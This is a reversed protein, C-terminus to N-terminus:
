APVSSPRQLVAPREDSLRSSSPLRVVVRTGDAHSSDVSISGGHAELIVRAIPLGLGSGTAHTEKPWRSWFRDFIMPLSAPDIGCGNDSIEVVASDGDERAVISIEGDDDTAKVANDVIAELADELRNRDALLTQQSNADIRWRRPIATWRAAIREILEDLDVWDTPLVRQGEPSALLILREAIGGLRHLEGVLTDIDAHVEPSSAERVLDAYGRAISLPTKLQHSADRLFARERVAAKRVEELATQRRQAHWVMALFMAGMLPVETLEDPGQPGQTVVWGLTIGTAICVGGLAALTTSVGWVRLGYLLTFSVWVFHFPVTEFEPVVLIGVLNIAAFALWSLELWHSHAWSRIGSM